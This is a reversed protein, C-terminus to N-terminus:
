RRGWRRDYVHIEVGPRARRLADIAANTVYSGHEIAFLLYVLSPLGQAIATLTENRNVVYNPLVLTTLNTCKSIVTDLASVSLNACWDMKLETLHPCNTAIDVIGKEEIRLCESVDLKTLGPCGRAIAVISADGILSCGIVGLATLRPCNQAIAVISENTLLSARAVRFKQLQPCGRAITQVVTDRLGYSVHDRSESDWMSAPQERGLDITRLNPCTRGVVELVENIGEPDRGVLSQTHSWGKRLPFSYGRGQISDSTACDYEEARPLVHVETTRPGLFRISRRPYDQQILVCSLGGRKQITEPNLDDWFHGHAQSLTEIDDPPLLEALLHTVTTPFSMATTPSPPRPIGIHASKYEGTRAARSPREDEEDDDETPRKNPPPPHPPTSMTPAHTHTHTLSGCVGVRARFM